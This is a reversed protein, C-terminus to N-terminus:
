LRNKSWRCSCTKGWNKTGVYKNLKGTNWLKKLLTKINEGDELFVSEPDGYINHEGEGFLLAYKYKQIWIFHSLVKAKLKPRLKEEKPNIINFVELGEYKAKKIGNESLKGNLLLAAKKAGVDRMIGLAYDVTSPGATSKWDKCEFIIYDFDGPSGVGIDVKRFGGWKTSINKESHVLTGKPFFDSLIMKSKDEFWKGKKM